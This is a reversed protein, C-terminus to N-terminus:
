TWGSERRNSYLQMQNSKLLLFSLVEANLSIFTKSRIIFSPLAKILILYQEVKKFFFFKLYLKGRPIMKDYVSGIRQFWNVSPSEIQKEHM